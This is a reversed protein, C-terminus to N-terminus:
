LGFPHVTIPSVVSMLHKVFHLAHERIVTLGRPAIDSSGRPIMLIGPLLYKFVLLATRTKDGHLPECIKRLSIYANFALASLGSRRQQHGFDLNAFGTELHTLDVMEQISNDLSEASRKLSCNDLFELYHFLM